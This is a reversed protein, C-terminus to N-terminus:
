RPPAIGGRGRAAGLALSRPWPSAPPSPRGADPDPESEDLGSVFSIGSTKALAWGAVAGLNTLIGLVAVPRSPRVLALVGWALQLAAVATFAIVASRHESHVGIAAAHIAGAGLSTLGAMGVLGTTTSVSLASPSATHDLAITV